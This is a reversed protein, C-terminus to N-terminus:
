RRIRFLNFRRNYYRKFRIVLPTTSFLTFCDFNSTIFIDDIVLVVAGIIIYTTVSNNAKNEQYTGLILDILVIFFIAIADVFEGVVLSAIIAIM